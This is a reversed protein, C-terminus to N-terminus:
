EPDFLRSSIGGDISICAGHLFKLNGSFISLVLESIEDPNGIRKQPHCDKIKSLLNEEPSSKLGSILMKTEIAAPEIANIRIKNGIDVAINRTLASLAAKSTAYSIFRPKTLKSHISSINIVSGNKSDFRNLLSQILFFPAFLNVNFSNLWDDIEIEDLHGLNQVGANNVLLNIKNRKFYDASIMIEDTIKDIASRSIITSIDFKIHQYNDDKFSPNICDIGIVQFKNQILKKCINEGIDGSSGTVVALMRNVEMLINKKLTGHM